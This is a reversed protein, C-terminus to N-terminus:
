TVSRDSPHASAGREATDTRPPGLGLVDRMTFWGRRGLVWRAATLAGYAFTARDRVGHTLAVTEYPGDFGVEHTGPIFGARTSSVDIPRAYGARTMAAKLALATGSPADRKAAHHREHLWAGFEPRGAFLAAAQEVLAEFILAGPSFNPAVVVGIGREEVVRRLTAEHASWGTTGIVVNIGHAALRPVNEVVAAPTSFDIAVDVGRCREATIGAGGPNNVSNLWGVPEFGERRSLSEVLRGMRGYGVLLLTPM